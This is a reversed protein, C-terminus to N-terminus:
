MVSCGSGQGQETSVMYNGFRKVKEWIGGLFGGGLLADGHMRLKAFSTKTLASMMYKMRLFQWFILAFVFSGGPTTISVVAFVGLAVECDCKLTALSYIDVRRALAQTSPFRQAASAIWCIAGLIIPLQTATGDPFMLLLLCYVVSHLDDDLAVPQWYYMSWKPIGYKSLLGALFAAISVHFGKGSIWALPWLLFLLAPLWTLDRRGYSPPPSAGSPPPSASSSPASSSPPSASQAPAELQLNPDVHQRYWKRKIKHIQAISPTPYINKLYSQWEESASWQFNAFREEAM